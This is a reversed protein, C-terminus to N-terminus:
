KMQVLRTEVRGIFFHVVAIRPNQMAHFEVEACHFSIRAINAAVIRVFEM